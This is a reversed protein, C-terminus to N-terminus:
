GSPPADGVRIDGSLGPQDPCAPRRGPSRSRSDPVPAPSYSLRIAASRPLDGTRLDPEIGPTHTVGNEDFILQGAQVVQMKGDADRLHWILGVTKDSDEYFTLNYSLVETLTYGTDLNAHTITIKEHVQVRDDFITVIDRGTFSQLYDFDCAGGAPFVFEDEFTETFQEPKAASAVPALAGIVLAGLALALLLRRVM